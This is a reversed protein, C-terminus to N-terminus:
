GSDEGVVQGHVKEIRALLSTRGQARRTQITTWMWVEVSIMEEGKVGRSRLSPNIRTFTFGKPSFGQDSKVSITCYSPDYMYGGYVMLIRVARM